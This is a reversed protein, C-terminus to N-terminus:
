GYQIWWFMLLLGAMLFLPMLHYIPIQSLHIPLDERYGRAALAFTVEEAELISRRLIPLALFKAKRIPNKNQDGLRAQHALSVEEVQDLTRSFFRLTLSVMLGIRREPLFPVPKLFWILADRLERPRTVATFVVAYGLILGLRWCTLGGLLLGEKSVPLWPFSHLRLGPTFLSQFLFLIFLFITWFRLERLLQKFPFRSLFFLGVLLISDFIFWSIRTQILTGTIMLLGFFKCRADWRHLLSNGPFYHLAIRAM